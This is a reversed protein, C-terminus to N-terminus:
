FGYSAEKHYTLLTSFKRWTGYYKVYWDPQFYIVQSEEESQDWTYGITFDEINNFEDESMANRLQQLMEAGSILQETASDEITIPTNAFRLPIKLHTVGSEVLGIESVSEYDLESFVPVGEIERRFKIIQNERDYATLVFTDSWNEFRNIQEFSSRYREIASIDESGYIQRLYTLTHNNNNITVEKTLDIYRTYSDTSRVDVLSTDPFFNSIYASNPLQNIVYSKYPIELSERPVYSINTNLLVAEAPVYNLNSQNLFPDLETTEGNMISATHMTQSDTHYFYVVDRQNLDYLVRDFFSNTLERSIEDFKQSLIGMPLEELYLFELWEGEELENYYDEYSVTATLEIRNINTTELRASLFNRLQYTSSILLQETEDIGHLAVVTPRFVDSASHTVLSVRSRSIQGSPLEEEGINRGATWLSFSLFFSLVVLVALIINRITDRKDVGM